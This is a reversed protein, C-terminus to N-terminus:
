SQYNNMEFIKWLLLQDIMNTKWECELRFSVDTEKKFRFSFNRLYLSPLLDLVDAVRKTIGFDDIINNLVETLFTCNYKLLANTRSWVNWNNRFNYM